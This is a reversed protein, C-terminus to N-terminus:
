KAAPLSHFQDELSKDYLEACAETALKDAEINLKAQWSLLPKKKTTSKTAKATTGWDQHGKVHHAQVQLNLQGFTEEIQLQVDM